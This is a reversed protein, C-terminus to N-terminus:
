RGTRLKRHISHLIDKGTNSNLESLVLHKTALEEKFFYNLTKMFYKAEKFTSGFEVQTYGFLNVAPLIRRLAELANKTEENVEQNNTIQGDTYQFIYISNFPYSIESGLHYALSYFKWM